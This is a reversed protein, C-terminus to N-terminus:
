GQKQNSLNIVLSPMNKGFSVKSVDSWMGCLPHNHNLPLPKTNLDWEQWKSAITSLSTVEESNM